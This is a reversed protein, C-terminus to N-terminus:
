EGSVNGDGGCEPCDGTDECLECNSLPGECEPCDGSGGCMTCTEINLPTGEPVVVLPHTTKSVDPQSM